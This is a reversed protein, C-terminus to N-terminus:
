LVTFELFSESDLNCATGTHAKVRNLLFHGQLGTSEFMFPDTKQLMACKLNYYTECKCPFSFVQRLIFIFLDIASPRRSERSGPCRCCPKVTRTGAKPLMPGVTGGYSRFINSNSQFSMSESFITKVVTWKSCCIRLSTNQRRKAPCTTQCHISLPLETKHTPKLVLAVMCADHYKHNAQPIRRAELYPSYVTVRTDPSQSHFLPPTSTFSSFCVLIWEGERRMACGRWVGCRAKM